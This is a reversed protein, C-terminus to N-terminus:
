RPAALLATHLLSAILTHGAASPHDGDPALLHTDNGKEKFPAYLDVYVMGHRQAEAQLVANVARTLGDSDRVYAQGNAAGVNGDEFVNWYGTVLVPGHAGLGTVLTSLLASVNAKLAALTPRYCALGALTTCRPGSLVGPDFDNAGITLVTVQGSRARTGNQRVQTLLQSSNQGPLADNVTTVAHGQTHGLRQALQVVYSTCGCASAAPVSDGLGQVTSM